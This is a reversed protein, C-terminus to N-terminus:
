SLFDIEITTQGIRIKDGKVLMESSIPRDNLLVQKPLKTIFRVGGVETPHLQFAENPASSEQLEIDLTNAGVVRPGYGLIHLEDTQIGSLFRLVVPPSFATLGAIPPREQSPLSQLESQIVSFPDSSNANSKTSYVSDESHGEAVLFLSSGVKFRVGPLLAIRGVKKENLRLGNSSGRDVLVLRGKAEIEVQAHFASVKPDKLLIEGASRGVKIGPVINFKLGKAPGELGELHILM